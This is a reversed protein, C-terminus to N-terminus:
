YFHTNVRNSCPSYLRYSGWFTREYWVPCRFYCHDTCRHLRISQAAGAQSGTNASYLVPLAAAETATALLLGACLAFVGKRSMAKNGGNITFAREPGNDLGAM